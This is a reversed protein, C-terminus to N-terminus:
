DPEPSIRPHTKGQASLQTLWSQTCFEIMPMM